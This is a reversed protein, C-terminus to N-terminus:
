SDLQPTAMAKEVQRLVQLAQKNEDTNWFPDYAENEQATISDVVTYTDTHNKLYLGLCTRIGVDSSTCLTGTPILCLRTKMIVIGRKIPLTM